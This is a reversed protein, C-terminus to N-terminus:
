YFVSSEETFEGPKWMVAFRPYLQKGRDIRLEVNGSMALRGEQFEAETRRAEGEGPPHLCVSSASSYRCEVVGWRWSLILNTSYHLTQVPAEPDYVSHSQSKIQKPKTTSQTAQVSNLNLQKPQISFKNREQNLRFQISFLQHNSSRFFDVEPIILRWEHQSWSSVSGDLSISIM